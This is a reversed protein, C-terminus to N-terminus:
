RCAIGEIEVLVGKPLRSVEVVSRAPKWGALMEEYASNCSPYDDMSTLYLTTKVLSGFGLGCAELIAGLNRMAQRLQEAATTGVITGSSPDLAIQGSVFVMSGAAIAHSYPGVPSPAGQATIRELEM